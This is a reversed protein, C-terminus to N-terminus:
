NIQGLDALAARGCSQPERGPTRMQECATGPRFVRLRRHRLRAHHGRAPRVPDRDRAPDGAVHDGAGAAHDHPRRGDAGECRLNLTLSRGGIREVALSLTVADGMHSAVRFDAEVRVTPLGVRRDVILKRYGIMLANDGWEEVLDNFMVFYQPYFVIGAPDCDTFRIQRTRSFSRGTAEASSHLEQLAIVNTM